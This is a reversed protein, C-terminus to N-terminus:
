LPQEDHWDCSWSRVSRMAGPAVQVSAEPRMVAEPVALISAWPVKL